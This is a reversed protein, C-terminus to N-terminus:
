YSNKGKDRWTELNRTTGYIVGEVVVFDFFIFRKEPFILTWNTGSDESRHVGYNNSLLYTDGLALMEYIYSEEKPGYNAEGWTKGWDQSRFLPNSINMLFLQDDLIATNHAAGKRHIEEWTKGADKSLLAGKDTGALIYNGRLNLSVIQTGIFVERWLMTIEDLLFLGSDTGLLIQDDVILIAQVRVDPLNFSYNIWTKGLDDSKFVGQQYVGVWVDKKHAFLANIKKGPLNGSIDKWSTKNKQSLFIGKNDTALLLEDQYPCLFSGQVNEPLGAKIAKWSLGGDTSLYVPSIFNDASQSAVSNSLKATAGELPKENTCSSFCLVLGLTFKLTKKLYCYFYFWTM